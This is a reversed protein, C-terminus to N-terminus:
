LYWVRITNDWSGTILKKGDSSLAMSSINDKHFTFDRIIKMTTIDYQTVKNKDGGSIFLFQDNTSLCMCSPYFGLSIQRLTFDQHMNYFILNSSWTCTILYTNDRTVIMTIVIDRNYINRKLCWNKMCWVKITKDLSSSIFYQDNWTVCFSNVCRKHQKLYALKRFTHTHYISISSSFSWIFLYKGDHSLSIGNMKSDLPIEARESRTKLNYVKAVRSSYCVIIHLNDTFIGISLAKKRNPIMSHIRPNSLSTIHVTGDISCSILYKNDHTIAVSTVQETHYKLVLGPNVPPPKIKHKFYQFLCKLASKQFAKKMPSPQSSHLISITISPHIVPPNNIYSHLISLLEKPSNYSLLNCILLIKTILPSSKLLTYILTTDETSLESKNIMYSTAECMELVSQELKKHNVSSLYSYQIFKDELRSWSDIVIGLYVEHVGKEVHRLIHCDGVWCMKGECKCLYKAIGGCHICLKSAM